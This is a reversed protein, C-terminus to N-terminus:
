RSVLDLFYGVAARGEAGLDESFENVYLAIHARIVEENLDQAHARCLALTEDDHEYAWCLSRRILDELTARMHLSRRLCIAGLPIPFGTREEWFEGLDAVLTLGDQAYTFRKEHIVVGQAGPTRLLEEYVMDFTQYRRQAPPMTRGRGEPKEDHSLYYSLLFNATTFEGPVLIERELSFAGGNTLLLPGCNRGLAGGCDLLEYREACRPYNAYSIKLVDLEGRQSMRNLNEVDQYIIEFTLDPHTIAGLIIGAFIFVDNPCPSIGLTLVSM